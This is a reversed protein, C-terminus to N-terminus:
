IMRLRQALREVARRQQDILSHAYFDLTTRASSHGLLASVTKVDVSLEMLRTAFSHRLTHFHVDPIGINVTMRQFRRQITRPDAPQTENGFIYQSPRNKLRQKLLTLIAQPVPLLRRSGTSKPASVILLTRNQMDNRRSAAIRQVSRRVAITHKEWDVDSWKLACIKGLQMGTYLGLLVPLEGRKVACACLQAQEDCSLVRQEAPVSNVPKLPRCPNKQIMGEEQAARLGASLLRHIGQITGPALGKNRLGDLFCRVDDPTLRCLPMQGLGPRIHRRYLNQYTQYSSERVRERQERELWREMWVSLRLRSGGSNVIGYQLSAKKELLISRVTHYQRGYM